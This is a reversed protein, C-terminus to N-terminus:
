AALGVVRENAPIKQLSTAIWQFVAKIKKFIGSQGLVKHAVSNSLGSVMDEPITKYRCHEEVSLLRTLDDKERGIFPENSRRKFYHAGAVPGSTESGKLIVHRFGKGAEKDRESKSVLYSHDRWVDSDGDVDDLIDVLRYSVPEKFLELEDLNFHEVLENCVAVSIMRKRNEIAGFDNGFLVTDLLTYNEEELTTTIVDYSATNMYESVCEMMIVPLNSIRIWNLIPHLLHGAEKDQEPRKLKKRARGAVSAVTCPIAILGVDATKGAKSLDLDQINANVLISNEDYLHRNNRLNSLLFKTEREIAVSVRTRIGTSELGDHAARDFIGAGSFISFVDLPVGDLVKKVIRESRNKIAQYSHHPRIVVKKETFELRLKTIKADFPIMSERIEILPKDGRRSVTKNSDKSECVSLTLAEENGDVKLSQGPKFGCESLYDFELWIRRTGRNEGIRSVHLFKM